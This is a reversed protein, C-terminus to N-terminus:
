RVRCRAPVHREGHTRLFLRIRESTDKKPKRKKKQFAEDGSTPSSSSATPFSSSPSSSASSSSSSSSLFTILPHRSSPSCSSPPLFYSYPDQRHAYFGQGDMPATIFGQIEYPFILLIVFRALTASSGHQGPM